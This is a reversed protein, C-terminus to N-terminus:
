GAGDGFGSIAYTNPFTFSSDHLGGPLQRAAEEVKAKQAYTGAM